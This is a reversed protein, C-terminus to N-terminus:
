RNIGMGEGGGGRCEVKWVRQFVPCEYKDKLVEKLRRQSAKRFRKNLTLTKKGM